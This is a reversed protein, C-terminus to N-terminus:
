AAPAAEAAAAAAAAAKEAEEAAKAKEAEAKLKAEAKAEAAREAALEPSIAEKLDAFYAVAGEEFHSLKRKADEVEKERGSVTSDFEELATTADSQAQQLEKMETAAARVAAKASEEAEQASELAAQAAEVKAAREAKGAEGESLVKTAEGIRKNLEEEIHSLVMTDFTGRESPPKGLASPLSTLMSPEFALEKGLKSLAAIKSAVEEAANGKEQLPKFMDNMAGELKTKDAEADELEADGDMQESAAEKHAKRAEKTAKTAAAAEEKAKDQAQKHAEIKEAAEKQATELGAKEAETNGMKSEAEELTKKMAAAQATLADGIWGVVKVQLADRKDVGVGLSDGLTSSLMSCVHAPLDVLSLADSVIRLKKAPSQKKAPSGPGASSARKQGKPAM